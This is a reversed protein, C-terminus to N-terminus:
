EERPKAKQGKPLVPMQNKPIEGPKWKISVKTGSVKFEGKMPPDDIEIDWNKIAALASKQEAKFERLPWQSNLIWDYKGPNDRKIQPLPKEVMLGHQRIFGGSSNKKYVLNNFATM